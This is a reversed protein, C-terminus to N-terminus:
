EFQRNLLAQTEKSEPFNKRLQLGYSAEADRDGLKREVRLSLWLMAAGPTVGARGLRTLYSKAQTYEGRKFSLDALNFLALPSEPRTKLARAFFDAAGEEDGSKRACLGANVFSKDPTRYLPNKLAAMFYKISEQEQKRQCLFWGFNNNADPDLPNIRLAKEFNQRAVADERLEMYVLGLVNYAPGFNADARLAENSEELAIGYQGVEYYSAALDTHVQARNRADTMEGAPAPSFPVLNQSQQACGAFVLTLLLSSLATTTLRTM